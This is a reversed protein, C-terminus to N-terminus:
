EGRFYKILSKNVENYLRRSLPISAGNDLHIDTKTIKDVYQLGVIYSRHCRIFKVPGQAAATQQELESIPMKVKFAGNITIVESFHAFSEIYIISDLPVRKQEGEVPLLLATINKSMHKVARDLVECFKAEDVPKMLYHLASVDYGETIFDSLATIFIIILKHEAGGRLDKALEVGSQGGMQIDLLLADFEKAENWAAKFSEASDFMRVTIKINNAEAWKSVLMRTYETQQHEDDCIAIRIEM